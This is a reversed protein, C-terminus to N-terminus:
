KALLIPVLEMFDLSDFDQVSVTWKRGKGGGTPTVESHTITYTRSTGDENEIKMAPTTGGAIGFYAKRIRKQHHTGFQTQPLVIGPTFPSGDDTDGGLEYIGDPKCGLATQAGTVGHINAGILDARGARRKHRQDDESGHCM